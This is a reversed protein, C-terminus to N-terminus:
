YIIIEYAKKFMNIATNCLNEHNFADFIHLFINKDHSKRCTDFM